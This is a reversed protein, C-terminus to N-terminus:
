RTASRARVPKVLVPAMSEDQATFWAVFDALAQRVPRSAYGLERRAKSDDLRASRLALRVGEATAVPRRHSFRTAAWECLTAACLAVSGPISVKMRQRGSLDDLSGLLQSLSMNEGGLIYREGPRGREVALIMGAAVDRVDVLNFIGNLYVHLDQELFHALMAAPPTFDFDDRGVPVTPNVIVVNLGREAAAAAAREALLKSRTYPGPADEPAAAVTEDIVGDAHAGALLVTESSCHLVRRVGRQRAASMVIETGGANVEEFDREHSTWLHAIGALHYVHDVGSMAGLVAAPDLVSGEVFEVRRHPKRPPVHDFIRVADGRRLLSAVLHQGIFGNGGTVLSRRL